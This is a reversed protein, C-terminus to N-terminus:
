LNKDLYKELLPLMDSQNNIIATAIIYDSKEKDLAIGHKLLLEVIKYNGYSAAIALAMGGTDEIGYDLATKVAIINQDKVANFLFVRHAFNTAESLVWNLFGPNIKKIKKYFFLEKDEYLCRTGEPNYRNTNIEVASYHTYLSNIYYIIQEFRFFDKEPSPGILTVPINKSTKIDFGENILQNIDIKTFLKYYIM